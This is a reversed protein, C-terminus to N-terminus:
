QNKERKSKRHLEDVINEMKTIKTKLELFKVLKRKRTGIEKNSEM